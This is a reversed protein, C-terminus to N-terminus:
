KSFHPRENRAESFYVIKSLPLEDSLRKAIKEGAEDLATVTAQDRFDAFFATEYKSIWTRIDKKLRGSIKLEDLDVYGGEYTDRVGTGFGVGDVTLYKMEFAWQDIM